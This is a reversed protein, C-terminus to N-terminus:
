GVRSPNRDTLFLTFNENVYTDVTTKLNSHETGEEVTLTVGQPMVYAADVM